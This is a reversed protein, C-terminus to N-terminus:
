FEFSTAIQWAWQGPRAMIEETAYNTKNGLNVDWRMHDRSIQGIFSFHRAIRKEMYLSWYWRNGSYSASDYLNKWASGDDFYITDGRYKQIWTPVPLGWNM